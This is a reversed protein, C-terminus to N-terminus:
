KERESRRRRRELGRWKRSWAGGRREVRCDRCFKETPPFSCFGAEVDVRREIASTKDESRFDQGFLSKNEGGGVVVGQLGKCPAICLKAQIAFM